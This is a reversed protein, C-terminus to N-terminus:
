RSRKTEEQANINDLKEGTKRQFFKNVSESIMCYLAVAGAVNDPLLHPIPANPFTHHLINIATLGCGIWFGVKYKYEDASLKALKTVYYIQKQENTMNEDKKNM